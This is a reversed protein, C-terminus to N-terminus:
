TFYKSDFSFHCKVKLFLISKSIILSIREMLEPYRSLKGLPISRFPPTRKSKKEKKLYGETLKIKM